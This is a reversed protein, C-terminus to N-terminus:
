GSGSNQVTRTCGVFDSRFEPKDKLARRWAGPGVGVIRTFHRTFHSQDSFGCEAAVDTLSRRDDRLKEKSLVIRQEILWNHPAVGLTRRFAHSFHGV